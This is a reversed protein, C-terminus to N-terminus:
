GSAGPPLAVGAVIAGVRSGSGPQNRSTDPPRSVTASVGIGRQILIGAGSLEYTGNLEFSRSDRYM